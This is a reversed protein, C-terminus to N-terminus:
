PLIRYLLNTQIKCPDKLKTQYELQLQLSKFAFHGWRFIKSYIKKRHLLKSLVLALGDVVTKFDLLGCITTFPRVVLESIVHPWCTSDGLRQQSGLDSNGSCIM